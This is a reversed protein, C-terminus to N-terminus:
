NDNLIRTTRTLYLLLGETTSVSTSENSLLTKAYLVCFANLRQVESSTYDATATSYKIKAQSRLSHLCFVRMLKISENDWKM